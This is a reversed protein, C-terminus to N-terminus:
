LQSNSRGCLVIEDEVIEDNVNKTAFYEEFDEKGFENKLNLVRQRLGSALLKFGWHDLIWTM